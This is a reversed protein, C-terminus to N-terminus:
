NYEDERKKEEATNVNTVNKLGRRLCGSEKRGKKRAEGREECHM